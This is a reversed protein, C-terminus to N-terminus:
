KMMMGTILLLENARNGAQIYELTQLIFNSGQEQFTTPGRLRNSLTRGERIQGRGSM